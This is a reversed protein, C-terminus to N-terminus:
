PKWGGFVEEIGYQRAQDDTLVRRAPNKVAGVGHSEYEFFRAMQPSYGSMPAWAETIIHDDMDCDIFVASPNVNPNSSPHWPRGLAVTNPKVANSERGLRSGTFVLGYRQLPPTSPAAIYGGGRSVIDCDDFVAVGAGFIFDVNGLIICQKFYARGANAFLTDQWGAVVCDVFEARDSGRDLHLAVAQTNKVKLPDNAARAQNGRFDFANEITLHEARFDPAAIRLTFSGRTGYTGGDPDPTDATADFSLVVSDRSEGRLTINAKDVTLKEHYRGNRVFIVHPASSSDPAAVLAAGISHFTPTNDVLAGDRGTFKADVVAGYRARAPAAPVIAAPAAAVCASATLTTALLLVLRSAIRQQVTGATRV